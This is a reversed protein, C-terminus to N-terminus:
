RRDPRAHLPLPDGRPDGRDQLPGPGHPVVHRRPGARQGRRLPGALADASPFGPATPADAIVKASEYKSMEDYAVLLALDTLPDGLTAMEWDLVARITDTDDVLLNDLRYDGHVIGPASEVVSGEEVRAALADYLADLDPIERSRSFDLQKKWRRTQRALFGEPRGFDALGVEAPDVAHLAALTDMMRMAIDHTRQEGLADFSPSRAPVAHRRVREMVYFPAGLVEDDECLAFTRPVPVATDALASMVRYERGM